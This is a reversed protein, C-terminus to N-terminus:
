GPHLIDDGGIGEAGEGAIRRIQQDAQGADLTVLRFQYALLYAAYVLAKTFLGTLVSGLGLGISTLSDKPEIWDTKERAAVVAEAVMLLVFGPIAYNVLNPPM